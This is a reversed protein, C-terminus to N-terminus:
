PLVEIARKNVEVAMQRTQRHKALLNTDVSVLTCTAHTQQLALHVTGQRDLIGSFVRVSLVLSQSSAVKKVQPSVNQTPTITHM